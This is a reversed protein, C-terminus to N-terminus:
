RCHMVAPRAPRPADDLPAPAEGTLEHEHQAYLRGLWAPDRDPARGPGNRLTATNM